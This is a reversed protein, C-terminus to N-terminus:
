TSLDSNNTSINVHTFATNANTQMRRFCILVNCAEHARSDKSYCAVHGGGVGRQLPDQGVCTAEAAHGGDLIDVQIQGLSEADLLLVHSEPEVVTLHPVLSDFCTFPWFSSLHCVCVLRSLWAKGKFLLIWIYFGLSQQIYCRMMLKPAKFHSKRDLM